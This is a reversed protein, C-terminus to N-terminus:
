YIFTKGSEWDMLTVFIFIVFVIVIIVIMFFSLAKIIVVFAIIIM